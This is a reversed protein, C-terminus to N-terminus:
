ARAAYHDVMAALDEPQTDSQVYGCANSCHRFISGDSFFTTNTVFLVQADPLRYNAFDAVALASGGQIVLDLVIVNFSHERILETAQDETEVRWVDPGLRAIHKEWLVGLDPNSEVILIKKKESILFRM